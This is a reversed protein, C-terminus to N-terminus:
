FRYLAGLRFSLGRGPYNLFRSYEVGFVNQLQVFAEARDNIRYMGEMTLDVIPKLKEAEMTVPRPAKMGALSSLTTQTSIRDSFKQFWDVTLKFNPMNWAKDFTDIGYSYIDTRIGLHTQRDAQWNLQGYWNFVTVAEPDVAIIFRASDNPSPIFFSMNEVSSLAVGSNVFIRSSINGRIGGSIKTKINEHAMTLSDDLFLNDRTLSSFTVPKLEGSLAGYVTWGPLGTWEASIDPYFFSKVGSIITDNTSALEVGAKIFLTEKKIGIWPNVKVFNRNISSESEFSIAGLRLEVGASLTSDFQYTGSTLFDLYNETSSPADSPTNQNTSRFVPQLEFSWDNDYIEQLKAGLRIRSVHNKDDSIRADADDYGYFRYGDSQWGFTPTFAWNRNQFTTFVDLYSVASASQRDRVTGKAFSEHYVWAGWNVKKTEQGYYGAILPSGFSGFGAKVFNQYPIQESGVTYVFPRLQPAYSGIGFNPSSINFRLRSTDRRIEPPAVPLYLKDASPLIIEKDKEIVIEESAVEGVQAILGACILVTLIFALLRM